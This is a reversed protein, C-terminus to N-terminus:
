LANGGMRFRMLGFSFVSLIDMKAVEFDVIEDLYSLSKLPM